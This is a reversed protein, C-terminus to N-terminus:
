QLILGVIPVRSATYILDREWELRSLETVNSRAESFLKGGIQLLTFFDPLGSSAIVTM